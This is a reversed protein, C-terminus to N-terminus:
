FKSKDNRERAIPATPPCAGGRADTAAGRACDVLVRLVDRNDALAGGEFQAQHADLYKTALALDGAALAQEARLVLVLEAEKAVPHDPRRAIAILLAHRREDFDVSRDISRDARWSTSEDRGRVHGMIVNWGRQALRETRVVIDSAIVPAREAIARRHLAGAGLSAAVILGAVTKTLASTTAGALAQTVPGAAVAPSGAASLAGTTATGVAETAVTATSVAGALAAVGFEAILRDRVARERSPTPDDAARSLDLMRRTEASLTTM